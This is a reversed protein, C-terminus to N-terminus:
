AGADRYRRLAIIRTVRTVGRGVREVREERGEGAQVESGVDEESLDVVWTVLHAIVWGEVLAVDEKEQLHGVLWEATLAMHKTESLAMPDMIVDWGPGAM